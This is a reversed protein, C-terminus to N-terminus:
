NIKANQRVNGFYEFGENLVFRLKNMSILDHLEKLDDKLYRNIIEERAKNCDDDSFSTKIGKEVLCGQSESFLSPETIRDVMKGLILSEEGSSNTYAYVFPKGKFKERIEKSYFFLPLGFFLFEASRYVDMPDEQNEFMKM